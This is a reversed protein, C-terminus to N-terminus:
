YVRVAVMYDSNWVTIVHFPTTKLRCSWHHSVSHDARPFWHFVYRCLGDQGRPESKAQPLSILTPAIRPEIRRRVKQRGIQSLSQYKGPRMTSM